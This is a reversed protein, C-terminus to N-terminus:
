HQIGTTGIYPNSCRPERPAFPSLLNHQCFECVVKGEIKETSKIRFGCRPCEWVYKRHFLLASIMRYTEPNETWGNYCAWFDEKTELHQNRLYTGRFIVFGDTPIPCTELRPFVLNVKPNQFAEEVEAWWIRPLIMDTDSLVVFDALTSALKLGEIRGLEISYDPPVIQVLPKPCDSSYLSDLFRSLLSLDREDTLLVVAVELTLFGNSFLKVTRSPCNAWRITSRSLFHICGDQHKGM